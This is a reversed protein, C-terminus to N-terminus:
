ISAFKSALLLPDQLTSHLLTKNHQQKNNNNNVNNHKALISKKRLKNSYAKSIRVLSFSVIYM